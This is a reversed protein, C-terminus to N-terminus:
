CVSVLICRARVKDRSSFSAFLYGFCFFWLLFYCSLLVGAPDQDLVFDKTAVQLLYWGSFKVVSFFVMLHGM